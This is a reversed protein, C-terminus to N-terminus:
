LVLLLWTDFDIAFSTTLAAEISLGIVRIFVYTGLIFSWDVHLVMMLYVRVVMWRGVHVLCLLEM